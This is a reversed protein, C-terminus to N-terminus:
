PYNRKMLHIYTEQIICRLSINGIAFCPVVHAHRFLNIADHKGEGCAILPKLVMKKEGERNVPYPAPPHPLVVEFM